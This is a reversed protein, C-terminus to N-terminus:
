VFKTPPVKFHVVLQLSLGEPHIDNGSQPLLLSSGPSLQSPLKNPAIFEHVFKLVKLPPVKLHEGVVHWSSVEEQVSFAFHPFLTISRPSLQSVFVKPGNLPFQM